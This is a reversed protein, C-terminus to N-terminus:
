CGPASPLRCSRDLHRDGGHVGLGFAEGLAILMNRTFPVTSRGVGIRASTAWLLLSAAASYCGVIPDGVDWRPKTAAALLGVGVAVLPTVGATREWDRAREGRARDGSRVWPEQMGRSSLLQRTWTQSDARPAAPTRRKRCARAPRGARATAHLGGVRDPRRDAPGTELRCSGGVDATATAPNPARM